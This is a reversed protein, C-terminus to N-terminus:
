VQECIIVLRVNTVALLQLILLEHLQDHKDTQTETQTDTHLDALLRTILKHKNYQIKM